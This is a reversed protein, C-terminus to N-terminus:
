KIKEGENENGSDQERERREMIGERIKKLEDPVM